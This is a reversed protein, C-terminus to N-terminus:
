KSSSEYKVRRVRVFHHHGVSDQVEWHDYCRGCQWITGIPYNEADPNDCNHPIYLLRGNELFSEPHEDHM